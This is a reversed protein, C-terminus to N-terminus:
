KKLYEYMKNIKQKFNNIFIHFTADELNKNERLYTTGITFFSVEPLYCGCM